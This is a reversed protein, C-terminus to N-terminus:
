SFSLQQQIGLGLVRENYYLLGSYQPIADQHVVIM